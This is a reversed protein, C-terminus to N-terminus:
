GFRPTRSRSTRYKIHYPKVRLLFYRRGTDERSITGDVRYADRRGRERRWACRGCQGGARAGDDQGIEDGGYDEGREFDALERTDELTQAARAAAAVRRRLAEPDAAADARALSRLAKTLSRVLM